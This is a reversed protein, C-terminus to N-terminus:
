RDSKVLGSVRGEAEVTRSELQQRYAKVEEMTTVVPEVGIGQTLVLGAPLADVTPLSSPLPEDLAAKLMLFPLNFNPIQIQIAGGSLFRGANVETVRLRGRSDYITDVGFVGHPAGDVALIARIGLDVMAPDRIFEQAGSIGSVGSPALNSFDWFLHRKCQAALIDGDKWIYECSVRDGPMREAAMFKGWGNHFDIWGIARELDDVPLSGRGAVGKVARLWLHPGIEIFARALDELSEIMISRPAPVGYKEWARYSAMKDQCLTITGAEPLFTRGRFSSGALAVATIEDEHQVWVLDPQTEEVINELVRLYTPHAARPVLYKEDAIARQLHFENADLGILHVPEPAARM